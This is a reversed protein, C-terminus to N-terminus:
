LQFALVSGGVVDTGNIPAELGGNTTVYLTDKTASTVGFRASTAGEVETSKPNGAFLTVKDGTALDVKTIENTPGSAIYATGERLTFDDVGINSALVSFSSLAAGTLLPDIPVRGFDKRGTNTYYLYDDSVRIGNVGISIAGSSGSPAALATDNIAVHLAGTLTNFRWVVGASADALLITGALSSLLTVGNISVAQPIDAIKSISPTSQTLDARWISWSGAPSVSNTMVKALPVTSVAFVYVKSCVSTIGTLMAAGPITALLEANSSSPQSPDILFLEPMDLRTVLLKGDPTLALNECWSGVPFEHILTPDTQVRSTVPFASGSLLSMTLFALCLKLTM